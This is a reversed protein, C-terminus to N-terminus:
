RSTGGATPPRTRGQSCRTSTIASNSSGRNTGRVLDTSVRSRGLSFIMGPLPPEAIRAEYTMGNARAFRDLRYRTVRARRWGVLASIGIAVGVGGFLLLGIGAFGFDRPSTALGILVSAAIPVSVLVVIVVVVLGIVTSVSMGLSGRARLEAAFSSVARPDVPDTLPRSDFSTAPQPHSM